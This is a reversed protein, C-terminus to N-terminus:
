ISLERWAKFRWILGQSGTLELTQYGAKLAAATDGRANSVSALKSAAAAATYLDRISLAKNLSERFYHESKALDPEELNFYADALFFALIGSQFRLHMRGIDRYYRELLQLNKLTRNAEFNQQVLNIEAILRMIPHINPYNRLDAKAALVAQLSQE